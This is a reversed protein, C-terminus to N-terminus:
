PARSRTPTGFKLSAEQAGSASRLSNEPASLWRARLPTNREPIFAEFRGFNKVRLWRRARDTSRRDDKPHISQFRSKVGPECLTQKPQSEIGEPSASGLRADAVCDSKFILIKATIRVTPAKAAALGISSLSAGKNISSIGDVVVGGGGGLM